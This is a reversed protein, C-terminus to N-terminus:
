ERDPGGQEDEATDDSDQDADSDAEDDSDPEAGPEEGTVFDDASVQDLFERFREVEDDAEEPVEIGAEDLIAETCFIDCGTRLALAIADSTRSSIETGDIVLNAHFNGKELKVIHVASLRHGLAQLVDVMLDHTLPRPPLVGDQANAIASAEAAGIWVPLYRQGIVERLLVMPQNAPMEVRVGVVDMERM